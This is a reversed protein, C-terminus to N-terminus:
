PPLRINRSGFWCFGSSHCRECKPERNHLFCVVVCVFMWVAEGKGQSGDPGSASVLVTRYVEEDTAYVNSPLRKGRIECARTSYCTLTWRVTQRRITRWNRKSKNSTRIKAVKFGVVQTKLLISKRWSRTSNIINSRACEAAWDKSLPDAVYLTVGIGRRRRSM